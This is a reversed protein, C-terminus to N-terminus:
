EQGYKMELRAIGRRTSKTLGWLVFFTWLIFFVVNYEWTEIEPPPILSVCFAMIIATIRTKLIIRDVLEQRVIQEQEVRAEFRYYVIGYYITMCIPGILAILFFM